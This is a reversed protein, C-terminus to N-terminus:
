KSSKRVIAMGAAVFIIGMVGPPAGLKWGFIYNLAGIIIFIFGIGAMIYGSIKKSKTTYEM